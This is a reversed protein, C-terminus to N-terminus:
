DKKAIWDRLNELYASREESSALEIAKQASARAEKEMKSAGYAIALNHWVVATSPHEESAEHLWKVASKYDKKGFAINALGIHAPLSQPWRKLVSLYSKEAEETKGIQELAATARAHAMEDGTAALEGPPLVVLGWYDGLKWNREFVKLDWHKFAEPGSHLIVQQAPLNYGFLLAYHWTPAWSLGLNEFVIVPHGAAVETFLSELGELPIAIMGNRRSASIMDLQLSGKMGPTYVQKAVEDVSAKKGAWQLAMTLTAPGCYFDTQEIFPVNPVEFSEPVKHARSLFADAQPTSSACAALALALFLLLGFKM